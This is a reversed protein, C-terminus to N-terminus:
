GGRIEERASAGGNRSLYITDSFDEKQNQKAFMLSFASLSFFLSIFAFNLIWLKM